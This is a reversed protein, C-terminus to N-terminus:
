SRRLSTGWTILHGWYMTIGQLPIGLLTRLERVGWDGIMLWWICGTQEESEMKQELPKELVTTSNRYRHLGIYGCPTGHEWTPVTTLWSALMDYRVRNLVDQLWIRM